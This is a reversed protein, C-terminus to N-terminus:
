AETAIYKRNRIASNILVYIVGLMGGILVSLALILLRKDKSEFDTADVKIAVATFNDLSSIPTSAFLAEARELTRDQEIERAQKQLEILLGLFEKNKEIRQLTRDQEISRRQQELEFLGVIFASPDERSEILEVEKEIAEYGRLYFPTDTKVNAIMGTQAGFTQAEITNKAVGLKRAIAAQERLFALRDATKREYDGLKNTIQTEIDELKFQQRMEFEAMETEFDREANEIKTALDELQFNRDQRAVSLATEFRRQFSDRVAESALENVSSLVRRWKEQENYEFVVRWFRQVEAREAGDVNVPPLIDISAAMLVIAENYMQENEYKETDLLAYRRIADEFLSREDLKEVYADLLDSPSIEFFEIANLAAYSDADASTIPKVETTAIFDPPPQLIQFGFVSMVSVAVFMAIKWKGEWVTLFLEALDIEDDYSPKLDDM